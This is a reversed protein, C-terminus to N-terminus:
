SAGKLENVMEEIVARPLGLIQILHAINEENLVPIQEGEPAEYHMTPAFFQVQEPADHHVTSGFTPPLKMSRGRLLPAKSRQFSAVQDVLIKESSTLVKRKKPNPARGELTGESQSPPILWQYWLGSGSSYQSATAALSGVPVIEPKGATATLVRGWSQRLMPPIEFVYSSDDRELALALAEVDPHLGLLVRLNNFITELLRLDPEKELLLLHAGYIGLMPNEFKGDLIQRIEESLVRRGRALGLRALEVLRAEHDSPQSARPYRSLLISADSLNAQRDEPQPGYIRQLLFIQTQWGPSAAITQELHSGSSLTLRLIYLGPDVEVNCAAWPDPVSSDSNSMEEFSILTDGNPHHLTLGKALHLTSEQTSTSAYGDRVFVFIASGVGRQVNQKNSESRAADEHYKHTKATNPLPVPSTFRLPEIDKEVRGAGPRLVIHEEKAESGVQVKVSYIGPKLQTEVQGLGRAALQFAGDIVFIEAGKDGTRVVLSVLESSSSTSM